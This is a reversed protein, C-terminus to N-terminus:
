PRRTGRASPRIRCGDTSGECLVASKSGIAQFACSGETSSFSSIMQEDPLGIAGMPSLTSATESELLAVVDAAFLASLALLVRDVVVAIPAPESLIAFLQNLRTTDRIAIQYEALPADSRLEAIGAAAGATEDDEDRVPNVM